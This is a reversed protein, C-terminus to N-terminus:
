RGIKQVISTPNPYNHRAAATIDQDPFGISVNTRRGAISRQGGDNAASAPLLAAEVKPRRVENAM